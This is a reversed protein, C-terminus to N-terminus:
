GFKRPPLAQIYVWTGDFGTISSLFSPASYLTPYNAASTGLDNGSAAAEYVQNTEAPYPIPRIQYYGATGYKETGGVDYTKAVSPNSWEELNYGNTAVGTETGVYTISTASAAQVFLGLGACVLSLPILNKKM